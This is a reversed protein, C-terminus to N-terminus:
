VLADGEARGTAISTLQAPQKTHPLPEFIKLHVFETDSTRVRVLYNTGAVVQSTCAIAEFVAFTSQAQAEADNKLNAVIGALKEDVPRESGFGGCMM